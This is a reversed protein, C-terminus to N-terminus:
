KSDNKTNLLLSISPGNGASNTAFISCSYTSFPCFGGLVHRGASQYVMSIQAHESSREDSDQLTCMLTYNLIVGNQNTILPPSWNFTITRSKTIASFNSPSGSPATSSVLHFVHHTVLVNTSHVGDTRMCVVSRSIPCM